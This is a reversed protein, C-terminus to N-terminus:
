AGDGAVVRVGARSSASDSGPSPAAVAGGGRRRRGAVDTSRRPGVRRRRMGRTVEDVGGDRIWVLCPSQADRWMRGSRAQDALEVRRCAPRKKRGPLLMREARSLGNEVTGPAGLPALELAVTLPMMQEPPREHANSAFM